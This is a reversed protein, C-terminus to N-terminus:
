DVALLDLIPVRWNAAASKRRSARSTTRGRRVHLRGQRDPERRDVAPARLEGRRLGGYFATASLARRDGIMSPPWCTAAEALLCDAGAPRGPPAVGAGETPDVRVQEAPDRSTCSACRTSRTQVTSASPRRRLRDPWSRCTPLPAPGFAVAGFAPLLGAREGGGHVPPHDRSSGGAVRAPITGDEAGTLLTDLAERVTTPTSARLEGRDRGRHKRGGRGGAAQTPFTKGIRKGDRAVVGASGVPVQLARGPVPETDSGSVPAM